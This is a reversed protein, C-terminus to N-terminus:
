RFDEERLGLEHCIYEVAKPPLLKQRPRVGLMQLNMRHSHLWRKLTVDSMGAAMAIEFKMKSKM